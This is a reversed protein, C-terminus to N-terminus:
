FSRCCRQVDMQYFIYLNCMASPFLLPVESDDFHHRSKACKEMQIQRMVYRDLGFFFTTQVRQQLQSYIYICSSPLNTFDTVCYARTALGKNEEHLIALDGTLSNKDTLPTWRALPKKARLHKQQVEDALCDPRSFSSRSQLPRRPMPRSEVFNNQFIHREYLVLCSVTQCKGICNLMCLHWYASQSLSFKVINSSHTPSNM